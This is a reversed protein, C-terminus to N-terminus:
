FATVPRSALYAAIKENAEVSRKSAAIGSLRALAEPNQAELMLSVSHLLLDAWTLSDGVAYGNSGYAAILKEIKILHLPADEAVFKKLAEESKEVRRVKQVYDNQCDSITDVLADVKAQELENKGALNFKKALYRAITLSQPLKTEGDIVLYPLQGAPSDLLLSSFGICTNSRKTFIFTLNLCLLKRLVTM